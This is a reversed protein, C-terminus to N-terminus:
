KRKGKRKPKVGSIKKAKKWNAAFFKKIKKRYANAIGIGVISLLIVVCTLAGYLQASPSDLDFVKYYFYSSGYLMGIGVVPVITLFLVFAIIGERQTRWLWKPFDILLEKVKLGVFVLIALAYKM